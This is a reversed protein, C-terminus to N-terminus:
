TFWLVGRYNLLASLHTALVRQQQKIWLAERGQKSRGEHGPCYSGKRNLNLTTFLFTALNLTLHTAVELAAPQLWTKVTTGQQSGLTCFFRWTLLISMCNPTWYFSQLLHPRSSGLSSYPCKFWKITRTGANKQTILSESGASQHSSTGFSAVSSWSKQPDGVIVHLLKESHSPNKKRKKKKKKKNTMNQKRKTM